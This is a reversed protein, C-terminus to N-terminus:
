LTEQQPQPPISLLCVLLSPYRSLLFPLEPTLRKTFALHETKSLSDVYWQVYVYTYSVCLNVSTKKSHMFGTVSVTASLVQINYEYHDFLQTRLAPCKDGGVAAM